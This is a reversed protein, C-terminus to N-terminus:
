YRMLLSGSTIGAGFATFLLNQGRKVRGDRVARDFAVPVTAASTNGMHSIELVVKDMSIGFHKAVGEIIRTNAQHPIVWDVDNGSMKNHELAEGCCQSMTRVAHKFVERGKMRMFNMGKDINEHTFPYASGGMPLEFLDSIMGDAHLHHSYIKSEDDDAARTAVVAGAGDGFLICTDRDQYNVYRTLLEAGIVLVNKYTGNVIFENAIGLGYLFGSCAASIDLAMCDRAGLKRQLVCATNPMIQDPSVTAFLIADLDKADLGAEKLAIKAAELALDSTVQDPAAVSRETIGTRERVWQDTTEVLKELDFNTLKKPPLYSGTGAIRTRYKM